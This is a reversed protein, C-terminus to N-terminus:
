RKGIRYINKGQAQLAGFYSRGSAEMMQCVQVYKGSLLVTIFIAM